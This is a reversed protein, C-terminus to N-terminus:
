HSLCMHIITAICNSRTSTNWFTFQSWSCSMRYSILFAKDVHTSKLLVLWLILVYVHGFVM